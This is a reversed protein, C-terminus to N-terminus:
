LIIFLCSLVHFLLILKEDADQINFTQTKSAQEKFSATEYTNM